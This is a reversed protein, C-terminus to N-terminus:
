SQSRVRRAWKWVQRFQSALVPNRFVYVFVTHFMLRVYSIFLPLDPWIARDGQM